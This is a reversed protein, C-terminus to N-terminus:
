HAPDSGQERRDDQEESEDQQDEDSDGENGDGEDGGADGDEDGRAPELWRAHERRVVEEFSTETRETAQGRILRELQIGATIAKLSVAAVEPAGRNLGELGKSQLYRAEKLHRQNMEDLSEVAQQNAHQRSTREAEAIRSQWDDKKAFDVVARKSVGYKKAVETYSRTPGLSFYFSFADEPIRRNM